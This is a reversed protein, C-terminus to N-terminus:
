ESVLIHGYGDLRGLHKNVPLGPNEDQDLFNMCFSISEDALFGQVISGDPCARNRVYRKIDGNMREFPMMSHLFSPGLQVVDDLVHVRLQVIIDFFAPSADLREVETCHPYKQKLDLIGSGM